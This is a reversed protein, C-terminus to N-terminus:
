LLYNLEFRCSSLHLPTLQRQVPRLLHLEAGCRSVPLRRLPRSCSKGAHFQLHPWNHKPSPPPVVQIKVYVNLVKNFVQTTDGPGPAPAAPYLCCGASERWTGGLSPSPPRLALSVGGAGPLGGIGPPVCSPIGRM